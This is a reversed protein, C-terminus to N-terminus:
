NKEYLYHGNGYSKGKDPSFMSKCLIFYKNWDDVEELTLYEPYLIEISEWFRKHWEDLTRWYNMGNVFWSDIFKLHTNHRKPEDYPWIHGGPFYDAMLTDEASLFQPITDTSVIFHHFTKGGSKLALSILKFLKDLNTVAELVGISIVRDYSGFDIDDKTIDDFFKQVLNFRNNHTQQNKDLLTERLHATQVVSPNIGTLTINPFKELLYRSFGGFGCGLELISHGDEIQARKIILEFKDIQANELSKAENTNPEDDTAGYYAMTYAMYKKDLFAQYINFKKNYHEISEAHTEKKAIDGEFSSVGHVEPLDKNNRWRKFERSFYTTMQTEFKILEASGYGYINHNNLQQIIDNSM